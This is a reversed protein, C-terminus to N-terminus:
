LFHERIPFPKGSYLCAPPLEKFFNQLTSSIKRATVVIRGKTSANKRQNRKCQSQNEAGGTSQTGDYKCQNAYRYHQNGSRKNNQHTCNESPYAAKDSFNQQRYYRNNKYGDANRHPKNREQRRNRQNRKRHYKYDSKRAASSLLSITRRIVPFLIYSPPM